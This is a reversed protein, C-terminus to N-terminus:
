FCIMAISGMTSTPDAVFKLQTFSFLLECSRRHRPEGHDEFGGLRYRGHADQAGRLVVERWQIGDGVWEGEVRRDGLVGGLRLGLRVGFLRVLGREFGCGISGESGGARDVRPAV